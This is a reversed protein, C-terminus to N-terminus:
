LSVFTRRLAYRSMAWNDVPPSPFAASRVMPGRRSDPTGRGTTTACGRGALETTIVRNSM